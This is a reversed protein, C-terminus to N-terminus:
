FSFRDNEKNYTIDKVNVRPMNSTNVLLDATFAQFRASSLIELDKLLVDEVLNFYESQESAKEELAFRQMLYNKVLGVIQKHNAATM